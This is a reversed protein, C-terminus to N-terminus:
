KLSNYIYFIEDSLSVLQITYSAHTHPFALESELYCVWLKLCEVCVCVCVCMCVCVGGGVCVCMFKSLKGIVHCIIPQEGVGVGTKGQPCHRDAWSYTCLRVNVCM